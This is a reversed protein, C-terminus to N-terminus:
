IYCHYLLSFKLFVESSNEQLDRVSSLLGRSYEEVRSLSPNFFIKAPYGYTYTRCGPLFSPLFDRIWMKGNQHTWTTFADGHLGHVAIIDVPYQEIAHQNGPMEHIPFLGVRPSTAIASGDSSPQHGGASRSRRKIKKKLRELMTLSALPPM